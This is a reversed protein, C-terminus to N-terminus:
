PAATRSEVAERLDPLDYSRLVGPVVQHLFPHAMRESMLSRWSELGGELAIEEFLDSELYAAHLAAPAVEGTARLRVREKGHENALWRAAILVDEARMALWNRGLMSGIYWDAGFFRWNKTATAGTDRVEVVLVPHGERHLREAEARVSARGDGPALLVPVEEGGPWHSLHLVIGPEPLFRFSGPLAGEEGEVEHAPQPIEGLRRIGTVERVLDPSLEPRNEALRREEGAFLDLMTREGERLLVQGKETVQLEADSFVPEEEDAEFVEINRDQLWRAFFRTSGERLRRSFGHKGPTEVLDIREPHGLVTYARKAQRFAEWTGEIPVFDGTAALIQVPVPARAILFDPHDFGDRVQGPLNQEADGPGPSENKRRHTTVFCGPAAAAIRDDCAVLYSTMNGGGSNGVCGIREPDVEPRSCLYDLGRRADWVMQAGLSSGLLLPAVGLHQHEGSAGQLIKGKPGLLQRREGQGIPDYCLVVFGSRALLRNARQYAGYSKGNASHGCPHLIAPFPGDGEPLYLHAAIHFGRRSAFIVKELVFGDGAIRGTTEAELPVGAPSPGFTRDLYARRKAQYAGLSEPSALAEEFERLRRDLADAVQGRQWDRMMQRLRTQPTENSQALGSGPGLLCALLLCPM